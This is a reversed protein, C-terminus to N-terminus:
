KEAHEREFRAVNEEIKKLIMNAQELWQRAVEVPIARILVPKYSKIWEEYPIFDEGEKPESFHWPYRPTIEFIINGNQDNYLWSALKPYMNQRTSWLANKSGVWYDIGELKECVLGPKDQLYENSLYGIDKSISEHLRLKNELSQSLSGILENMFYLVLDLAMTYTHEQTYFNIAGESCCALEEFNCPLSMFIGEENNLKFIIKNLRM